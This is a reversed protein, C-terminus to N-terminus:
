GTKGDVTNDTPWRGLSCRRAWEMGPWTVLKEPRRRLAEAELRM